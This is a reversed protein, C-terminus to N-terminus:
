MWPTFQEITYVIEASGHFPMPPKGENNIVLIVWCLGWLTWPPHLMQQALEKVAFVIVVGETSPTALDYM